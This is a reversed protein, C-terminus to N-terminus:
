QSNSIPKLRVIQGLQLPLAKKLLLDCWRAGCVWKQVCISRLDGALQLTIKTIELESRSNKTKKPPAV